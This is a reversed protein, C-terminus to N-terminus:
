SLCITREDLRKTGLVPSSGAFGQPCLWRLAALKGTEGGRCLHALSSKFGEILEPYVEMLGTCTLPNSGGVRVPCLGSSHAYELEAVGALKDRDPLALSPGSARIVLHCELM